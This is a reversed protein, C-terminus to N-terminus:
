VDFSAKEGVTTLYNGVVLIGKDYIAVGDKNGIIYRHQKLWHVRRFFSSYKWAGDTCENFIYKPDLFVNRNKRNILYLLIMLDMEGGLGLTAWMARNKAAQFAINGLLSFGKNIESMDEEARWKGLNRKAMEWLQYIKQFFRNYFYFESQSNQHLMFSDLLMASSSLVFLKSKLMEDIIESRKGDMDKVLKLKDKAGIEITIPCGTKALLMLREELPSENCFRRLNKNQVVKQQESLTLFKKDEVTLQMFWWHCFSNFQIDNFRYKRLRAM